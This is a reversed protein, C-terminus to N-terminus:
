MRTAAVTPALKIPTTSKPVIAPEINGNTRRLSPRSGALAEAGNTAVRTSTVPRTMYKVTALMMRRPTRRQGIGHPEPPSGCCDESQNCQDIVERDKGSLYRKWAIFNDAM